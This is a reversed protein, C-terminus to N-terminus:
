SFLSAFRDFNFILYLFLVVLIIALGMLVWVWVPLGDDEDGEARLPKFNPPPPAAPRPTFVPTPITPMPAISEQEIRAEEAERLAPPSATAIRDRLSPASDTRAPETRIPPLPRSLPPPETRTSYTIEERDLVADPEVTRASQGGLQAQLQQLRSRVSAAHPHSPALELFRKLAAVKRHPDPTAESLWLWATADQPEQALRARLLTFATAQDGHRLAAIAEEIPNSV